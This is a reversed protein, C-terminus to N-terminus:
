FLKSFFAGIMGFLGKPATGSTASASDTLSVATVSTGNVTGQALVNDGVAVSSVSSTTGNKTITANTVDITYSTNSKNTITVIDGSVATVTGGIVPQGNGTPITAGGNSGPVKMMVGDSIKTATVSTGSVTGQVMVTDGIAIASVSSAVNAKTVTAGSANVTYTTTTGTSSDSKEFGKSQVTITDGSIATVTGFVGNGRQGMMGGPVVGDNIKTATVSTGSVTGQVMVTDGVAISSISSAAGAKTVTAGAANVTYTVAPTTTTTGTRAFAKSQVTITNGSIATVTGFVGPMHQMMNGSTNNDNSDARVQVSAGNNDAHGDLNIGLFAASAPTSFGVSIVAAALVLAPITILKKNMKNM